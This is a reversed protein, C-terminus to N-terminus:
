APPLAVGKEREREAPRHLIQRRLPFSPPFYRARTFSNGRQGFFQTLQTGKKKKKQIEGGQLLSEPSNNQLYVEKQM